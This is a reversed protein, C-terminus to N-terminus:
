KKTNTSNTSESDSVGYMDEGENVNSDPNINSGPNIPRYFNFERHYITNDRVPRGFLRNSDSPNVRVELDINPETNVNPEYSIYM